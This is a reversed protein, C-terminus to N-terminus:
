EWWGYFERWHMPTEIPSDKKQIGASVGSSGWRGRGGPQGRLLLLRLGGEKGADLDAIAPYCRDPLEDVQAVRSSPGGVEIEM